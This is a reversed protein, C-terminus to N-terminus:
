AVHSAGGSLAVRLVATVTAAVAFDGDESGCDEAM